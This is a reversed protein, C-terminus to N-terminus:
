SSDPAISCIDNSSSAAAIDDHTATALKTRPTTRKISTTSMHHLAVGHATAFDVRKVLMAAAGVRGAREVDPDRRRPGTRPGGTTPCNPVSDLSAVLRRRNGPRLRRNPPPPRVCRTRPGGAPVRGCRCWRRWCVAAFLRPNTPSPRSRRDHRSPTPSRARCAPSPARCTSVTVTVMQHRARRAEILELNGGFPDGDRAAAARDGLVAGRVPRRHGDARLLDASCHDPHASGPIVGDPGSIEAMIRPHSPGRLSSIGIWTRGERGRARSPGGRPSTTPGSLRRILVRAAPCASRAWGSRGRRSPSRQWRAASSCCSCRVVAVVRSRPPLPSQMTPRYGCRPPASWRPEGGGASPWRGTHRDDVRAAHDAISRRPRRDEAGSKSFSSSGSLPGAPRRRRLPRVASSPTLGGSSTSSSRPL